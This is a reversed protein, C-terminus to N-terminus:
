LVHIDSIELRYRDDVRRTIVSLTLDSRGEELIWLPVDLDIRSPDHTIPFADILSIAEDPLPLLTRGYDRIAASLESATLRGARGDSELEDFRGRALEAVLSRLADLLSKDM